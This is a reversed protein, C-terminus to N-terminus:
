VGFYNRVEEPILGECTQVVLLIEEDHNGLEIENLCYFYLELYDATKFLQFKQEGLKEKINEDSYTRLHPYETVIEEEIADWLKKTKDNLHKVPWLLDGTKTELLDHKLVLDWEEVTFSLGERECLDKFIMGVLYSHEVLNYPKNKARGSLREVYLMSRLESM